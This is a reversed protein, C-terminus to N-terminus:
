VYESEREITQGPHSLGSVGAYHIVCRTEKDIRRLADEGVYTVDFPEVWALTHQLRVLVQNGRAEIVPEVFYEGSGHKITAILNM